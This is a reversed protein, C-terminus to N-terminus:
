NLFVTWNQIEIAPNEKDIFTLFYNKAMQLIREKDDIISLNYIGFSTGSNLTLFHALDTEMRIVYDSFAWKNGYEDRFTM